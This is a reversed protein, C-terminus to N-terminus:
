SIEFSRKKIVKNGDRDVLTFILDYWGTEGNAKLACLTASPDLGEGSERVGPGVIAWSSQAADIDGGVFAAATPNLPSNQLLGGSFVIKGGDMIPAAEPAATPAPPEVVSVPAPPAPPTEAPPKASPSPGFELILVVAAAGALAYLGFAGKSAARTKVYAGAAERAGGSAANRFFPVSAKKMPLLLEQMGFAAAIAVDPVLAPATDRTAPRMEAIEESSFLASLQKRARSINSSVTKVPTHTMVAIEEYSFEDYHYLLVFERRKGPLQRIGALLRDALEKRLLAQEPNTEAHQLNQGAPADNLVLTFLTQIDTPVEHATIRASRRWHERCCNKVIQYIWSEVAEPAKLRTINKVIAMCAEQAVDEAEPGNGMINIVHMLICRYKMELLRELAERDGNAAAFAADRVRNDTM